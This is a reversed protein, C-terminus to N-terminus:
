DRLCRVSYGFSPNASNISYIKEGDNKLYRCSGDFLWFNAENGVFSSTSNNRKGAPYASFGTANNKVDQSYGVECQFNVNTTPTWEATSALAKALYEVNGDCIFSNNIMLYDVLTSWEDATPLHWGAPCVKLVKLTLKKLLDYKKPSGNPEYLSTQYTGVPTGAPFNFGNETYAEGYNVEANIKQTVLQAQTMGEAIEYGGDSFIAWKDRLRRIILM